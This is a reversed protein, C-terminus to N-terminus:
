RSYPSYAQTLELKYNKGGTYGRFMCPIKGIDVGDENYIETNTDLKKFDNDSYKIQISVSHDLLYCSNDRRFSLTSGESGISYKPDSVFIKFFHYEDPNDIKNYRFVLDRNFQEIIKGVEYDLFHTYPATQIDSLKYNGSFMSSIINGILKGSGSIENEQDGM